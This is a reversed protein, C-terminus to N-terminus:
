PKPHSDSQMSPRMRQSNLRLRSRILTVIHGQIEQPFDLRYNNLGFSPPGASFFSPSTSVQVSWAAAQHGKVLTQEFRKDEPEVGGRPGTMALPSSLAAVPPDVAPVELAKALELGINYLWKDLSNPFLDSGPSAWHRQVLDLFFRTSPIM